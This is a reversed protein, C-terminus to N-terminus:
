AIVEVLVGVAMVAMPAPVSGPLELSQGRGVEWAILALAAAAFYRILHLTTAQALALGLAAAGVNVLISFLATVLFERRGDAHHLRAEEVAALFAGVGAIMTFAVTLVVVPQALHGGAALVMVQGDLAALTTLLFLRSGLARRVLSGDGLCRQVLSPLAPLAVSIPRSSSQHM